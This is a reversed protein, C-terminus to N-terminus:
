LFQRVRGQCWTPMINSMPSQQSSGDIKTTNSNDFSPPTNHLVDQKNAVSPPAIVFWKQNNNETEECCQRICPPLLALQGVVCIHQWVHLQCTVLDCLAESGLVFPAM